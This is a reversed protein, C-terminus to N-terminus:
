PSFLPVEVEQPVPCACSCQFQERPAEVRVVRETVQYGPAAVVLHYIGWGQGGFTCRAQIRRTPDCPAPQGINEGNVLVEVSFSTLPTRTEGDVVVLNILNECPLCGCDVLDASTGCDAGTLLLLAGFALHLPALRLSAAM